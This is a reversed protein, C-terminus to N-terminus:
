AALHKSMDEYSGISGLWQNKGLTANAALPLQMGVIQATQLKEQNLLGITAKVLKKGYGANHYFVDSVDPNDVVADKVMILDDSSFLYVMGTEEHSHQPHDHDVEYQLVADDGSVARVVKIMEDENYTDLQKSATEITQEIGRKIDAKQSATAVLIGQTLDQSAEQIEDFKELYTMLVPISGRGAMGCSKHMAAAGPLLRAITGFRDIMRDQQMVGAISLVNNLFLVPAGVVKPRAISVTEGALTLYNRRGDMCNGPLEFINHIPKKGDEVLRKNIEDISTLGQKSIFELTQEFREKSCSAGDIAGKGFEMRTIIKIDEINTSVVEIGGRNVNKEYIGLYDVPEHESRTAIGGVQQIPANLGEPHQLHESMVFDIENVLSKITKVVFTFDVGILV